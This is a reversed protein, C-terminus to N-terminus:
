IKEEVFKVTNNEEIFKSLKQAMIQQSLSSAISPNQSMQKYIAKEETKYMQALNKVQEEFDKNEVTINEAKAVADLVLSNKVRIFAESRLNNWMNEHGQSEIVQEWSLGQTKCKEQMEEMLIKAERNVMSDPIEVKADDVIKDLLAKQARNKNENNVTKELYKQIDAKLEDVTQFPGVKQAIEDNIEPVIKEKIENLKIEFKAPKGAIDKDHYEEPFAVEIIFEEGISHNVIQEAFGPIFTSNGLDLQYNKAAGGKIANGEISGAFDIVVVDKESAARSTVPEFKSFREALVKFEKELSDQPLKFEPVEIQMGKYEKLKVEPRLELKAVIKLPNGLDFDFSEIIPETIIDFKNESITEAFVKPLISDLASRQIRDIGVHKEIIAKPAKGKRFGPISLSMGINRCAKNYEQTAVDAEVEINVQVFNNEKKQVDVKM